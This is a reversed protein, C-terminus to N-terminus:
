ANEAKLEEFLEVSGFFRAKDDEDLNEDVEDFGILRNFYSNRFVNTVPNGSKDFVWNSEDDDGKKDLKKHVEKESTGVEVVRQGDFIGADAASGDEKLACVMAPLKVDWMHELRKLDDMGEPCSEKPLILDCIKMEEHPEMGLVKLCFEKFQRQFYDGSFFCVSVKEGKKNPGAEKGDHTKGPAIGWLATMLVEVRFGGKRNEHMRVSNLLYAAKGLEPDPIRTSGSAQATNMGKFKDLMNSM